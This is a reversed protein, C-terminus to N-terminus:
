TLKAGLPEEGRYEFFNSRTEEVRVKELRVAMGSNEPMSNSAGGRWLPFCRALLNYIELCFNETTTVRNHFNQVDLNLHKHDFRDLVERQVIEDLLSLDMVMGTAPDVRGCVTVELAYDHGHGRPNNCKGYLRANEANSLAPNHLRHAASIRYRRTLHVM